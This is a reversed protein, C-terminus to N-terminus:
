IQKQKKEKLRASAFVCSVRLLFPTGGRVRGEWEGWAQRRKGLFHLPPNKYAVM